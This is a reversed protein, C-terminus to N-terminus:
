LIPSIYIGSDPYEDFKEISGNVSLTSLYNCNFYIQGWMGSLEIAKLTVFREFIASSMKIGSM